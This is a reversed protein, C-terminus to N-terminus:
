TDGNTGFTIGYLRKRLVVSVAADDNVTFLTLKNQSYIWVLAIADTGNSENKTEPPKVSM